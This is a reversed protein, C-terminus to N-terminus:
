RPALDSTLTAYYEQAMKEYSSETVAASETIVKECLDSYYESAAASEPDEKVNRNSDLAEQLPVDGVASLGSSLKVSTVSRMQAKVSVPAAAHDVGLGFVEDFRSLFKEQSVHGSSDGDLDRFWSLATAESLGLSAAGVKLEQEELTGNGNTDLRIFVARATEMKSFSQPALWQLPPVVALASLGSASGGAMKEWEELGDDANLASKRASSKETSDISLHPAPKAYTGAPSSSSTLDAYYASAMVESSDADDRRPNRGSDELATRLRQVEAEMATAHKWAAQQLGRERELESRVRKLERAVGGLEGELRKVQNRHSLRELELTRNLDGGELSFTADSLPGSSFQTESSPSSRRDPQSGPALPSLLNVKGGSGSGVGSAAGLPPVEKPPPVRVTCSMLKQSPTGPRGPVRIFFKRGNDYRARSAPHEQQGRISRQSESAALAPLTGSRKAM